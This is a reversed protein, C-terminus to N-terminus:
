RKQKQLYNSDCYPPRHANSAIILFCDHITHSHSDKFPSSYNSKLQNMIVPGSDALNVVILLSPDLPFELDVAPSLEFLLFSYKKIIGM